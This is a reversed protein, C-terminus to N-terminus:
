RNGALAQRLVGIVFRTNTVLYRRWMRGPEQLVRHLWELGGKQMWAPARSVKGAYVDFSGGVGHIVPVTLKEEWKSMFREKIPSSIAVFLVDPAAENIQEVIGAEDEPSFYGNRRGAVQVGPYDSTIQEAVSSCVDESAGLLFVRYGPERGLELTRFMIDIGAVREPLPVGLIRSAWVVSMGDALVLDSTRVDRDLDPDRQMNVLKAANVVGIRLRRQREVAVAIRELLEDMTLKHVPTGLVTSVAPEDATEPGSRVEHAGSPM